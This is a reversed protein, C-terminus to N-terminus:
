GVAVHHQRHHRAEHRRAPDSLDRRFSGCRHAHRGAARGLRSSSCKRSPSCASTPAPKKCKWGRSGKFSTRFFKEDAEVMGALPQCPNTTLRSLFRHRWRRLTPISLPLDYEDRLRWLAVHHGMLGLYRSWLHRKRLRYFPAGTTAGFTAKCNQCKFRQTGAKSRGWRQIKSDGCHLCTKTDTSRRELAVDTAQQSVLDAVFAQVDLVDKTSLKALKRKLIDTPSKTQMM